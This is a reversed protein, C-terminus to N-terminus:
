KEEVFILQNNYAFDRNKMCTLMCLKISDKDYKFILCSNIFNNILTPNATAQLDVLDVFIQNM